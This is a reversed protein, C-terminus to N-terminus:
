CTVSIADDRVQPVGNFDSGGSTVVVSNTAIKYVRQKEAHSFVRYQSGAKVVFCPVHTIAPGSSPYQLYNRIAPHDCRMTQVVNAYGPTNKIENYTAVSEVHTSTWLFVIAATNDGSPCPIPEPLASASIASDLTSSARSSSSSSAPNADSM